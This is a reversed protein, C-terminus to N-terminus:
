RYKDFNNNANFPKEENRFLGPSGARREDQVGGTEGLGLLLLIKSVKSELKEGSGDVATEADDVRQELDLSDRLSLAWGEFARGIGAVVGM